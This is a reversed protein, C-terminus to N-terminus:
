PVRIEAIDTVLVNGNFSAARDNFAFPLLAYQNPGVIGVGNTRGGIDVTFLPPCPYASVSCVAAVISTATAVQPQVVLLLALVGALAVLFHPWKRPFHPSGNHRHSVFNVISNKM